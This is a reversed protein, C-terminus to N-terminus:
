WSAETRKKPGDRRCVSFPRRLSSSWESSEFLISSLVPCPPPDGVTNKRRREYTQKNQKDDAQPRREDLTKDTPAHRQYRHRITTRRYQETSSQWADERVLVDFFIVRRSRTHLQKKAHTFICVGSSIELPLHSPATYLGERSHRPIGSQPM